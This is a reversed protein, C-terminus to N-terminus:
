PQPLKPFHCFEETRLLMITTPLCRMNDDGSISAKWWISLAIFTGAGVVTYKLQPEM